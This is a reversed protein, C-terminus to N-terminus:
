INQARKLKRIISTRVQKDKLMRELTLSDPMDKTLKHSGPYGHWCNQDNVFVSIYLIDLQKNTGTQCLVNRNMFLNYSKNDYFYLNMISDYFLSVEDDKPIIWWSKNPNFNTIHHYPVFKYVEKNPGINYAKGNVYMFLREM